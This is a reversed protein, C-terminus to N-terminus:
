RKTGRIQGIAPGECSSQTQDGSITIATADVRATASVSLECGAIVTQATYTINNGEITGDFSLRFEDSRGEAFIVSGGLASGSQQFLVAFSDTQSGGVRGGDSREVVTGTFEIDWAGDVSTVPETPLPGDGGCGMVAWSLLAMAVHHVAICVSKKSM